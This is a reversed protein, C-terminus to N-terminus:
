AQQREEPAASYVPRPEEPVLLWAALYGLIGPVVGTFCTAVIWILRVLVPDVEFFEGFGGCVGAIRKETVSRFIKKGRITM